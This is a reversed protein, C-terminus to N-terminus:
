IKIRPKATGNTINELEIDSKKVSKVAVIEGIKRTKNNLFIVDHDKFYSYAKEQYQKEIEGWEKPFIKKIEEIQSKNIETDANKYNPLAQKKLKVADSIISSLNVTGGLKFDRVFGDLGVTVAKVEYKKSGVILDVGASSGGGLHANNLLFYLTAEGPGVGKLPYSHMTKFAGMDESKLRDILQNLKNKDVVNLTNELKFKPFFHKNFLHQIEAKYRLTEFDKATINFATVKEARKLFELDMTNLDFEESLQQYQKFDLM